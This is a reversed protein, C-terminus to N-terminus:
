AKYAQDNQRNKNEKNREELLSAGIMRYSDNGQLYSHVAASKDEASFKAM